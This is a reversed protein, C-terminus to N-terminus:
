QGHCRKFKVGSGCPCAENRGVQIPGKPLNKVTVPKGLKYSERLDTADPYIPNIEPRPYGHHVHYYVANLFTAYLSDIQLWDCNAKVFHHLGCNKTYAAVYDLEDDSFAKKHLLIRQSLYNKLQRSGWQYCQWLDAIQGLDLINIAWPYPEEEKKELLFSLYTALPGYSDRTVCVCFAREAISSPLCLVEKGCKDFLKLKGERLSNFLRLSQDYAKQIGTDSHFSGRLRVFAKKRIGLHSALHPPRPKQSYVSIM